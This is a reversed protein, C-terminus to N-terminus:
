IDWATVVEATTGYLDFVVCLYRGTETQAFLLYRGGKGRRFRKPRDSFFCSRVEDPYIDHKEIIHEIVEESYTVETIRM